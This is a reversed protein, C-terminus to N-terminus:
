YFNHQPQLSSYINHLNQEMNFMKQKDKLNVEKNNDKKKHRQFKDM